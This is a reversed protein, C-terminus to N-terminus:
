KQILNDQFKSKMLTMLSLKFEFAVFSFLFFCFLSFFWQEDPAKSRTAAAAEDDDDGDDDEEEIFTATNEIYRLCPYQENRTIFIDLAPCLDCVICLQRTSSGRPSQTSKKRTVNAFLPLLYMENGPRRLDTVALCSRSRLPVDSWHCFHLVTNKSVPSLFM